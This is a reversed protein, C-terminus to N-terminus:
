GAADGAPRAGTVVPMAGFVVFLLLFGFPSASEDVLDYAVPILERIKEKPPLTVTEPLSEPSVDIRHEFLVTRPKAEFKARFEDDSALKEILEQAKRRSITAKVEYRKAM